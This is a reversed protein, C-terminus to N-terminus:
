VVAEGPYLVVYNWPADADGIVVVGSRYKYMDSLQKGEHNYIRIEYKWPWKLVSIPKTGRNDIRVEFQNTKGIRTLSLVASDSERASSGGVQRGLSTVVCLAGLAAVFPMM